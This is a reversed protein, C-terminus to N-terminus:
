PAYKIEVWAKDETVMLADKAAESIGIISNHYMKTDPITGLVKVFITKDAGPNYVKIITGRKATNHFAYYTETTNLRGKDEYFVAPGKGEEVVLEDRTQSKYQKEIEPTTDVPKRTIITITEGNKGKTNDEYKSRLKKTTKDEGAQQAPVSYMVWGVFLRDAEEIYNDPMNNWQQLTKQQVGALHALRYLNDYKRVMYYLPKASLRDAPQKGLMNYRGLPIYLTDVNDITAQYNIKNMDALVAPPVHYKQAITFITEGPLPTYKVVWKDDYFVVHLTDIGPNDAELKMQANGRLFYSLFLITFFLKYM